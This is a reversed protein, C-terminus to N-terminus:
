QAPEVVTSADIRIATQALLRGTISAGTKLTISTQSLVVGELHATTDLVVKGAIQWFVNEPLAGDALLIKTASSVSLDKSVQFIWVATSDGSLTVDKSISLGTSWKYVGPVLTMGGINGAGVEVFDPAHGAADSFALEMDRIATTMNAPTPVAYNAAYVKGTVQASTAFMNTSDATLSFGTIYSAAAPSLGLNGTVAATPVTSIGSKALMVYQDATGLEVVPVEVGSASAADTRSRGADPKSTGADTQSSATSGANSSGGHSDSSGSDNTKISTRDSADKAGTSGCATFALLLFAAVAGCHNSKLKGIM